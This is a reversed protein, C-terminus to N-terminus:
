TMLNTTSNNNEAAASPLAAQSTDAEQQKLVAHAQEAKKAWLDAANHLERAITDALKPDNKVNMRIILENMFQLFIVLPRAAVKDSDSGQEFVSLVSAFIMLAHDSSKSRDEIRGEHAAKAALTMHKAAGNLFFALAEEPTEFHAGNDKVSKYIKNYLTTMQEEKQERIINRKKIINWKKL